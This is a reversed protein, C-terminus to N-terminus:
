TAGPHPLHRDLVRRVRCTLVDKNIPKRIYDEAGLELAKIEDEQGTMATVMIVPVHLGIRRLMEMFKYGDLNPMSIDCLILDFHQQGLLLLADVSAAALTVAYGESVLFREELLRAAADDDVVLISARASRGERSDHPAPAEPAPSQMARATGPLKLAQVAQPLTKSAQLSARKADATKEGLLREFLGSINGPETVAYRTLQNIGMFKKM